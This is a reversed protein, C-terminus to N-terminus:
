FLSDASHENPAYYFKWKGNLSLITQANTIMNIVLAMALLLEKKKM